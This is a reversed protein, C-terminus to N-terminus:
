LLVLQKMLMTDNALNSLTMGVLKPASTVISVPMLGNKIFLCMCLPRSLLRVAKRKVKSM